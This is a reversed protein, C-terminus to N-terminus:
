LAVMGDYNTNAVIVGPPLRRFNITEEVALEMQDPFVAVIGDITGWTIGGVEVGPHGPPADHAVYGIRQDYTYRMLRM